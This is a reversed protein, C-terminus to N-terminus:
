NIDRELVCTQAWALLKVFLEDITVLVANLRRVRADELDRRRCRRRQGASTKPPRNLVERGAEDVALREGCLHDGDGRLDNVNWSQGLPLAAVGTRGHKSPADGRRSPSM